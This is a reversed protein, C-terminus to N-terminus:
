SAQIRLGSLQAGVLACAANMGAAVNPAGCVIALPAGSGADVRCVSLRDANPHKAVELVKGVVVKDFAPAVPEIAEVEIGAMTLVQALQDLSHPPDVFERLWRESFKM